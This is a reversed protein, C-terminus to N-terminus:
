VDIGPVAPSQPAAGGIGLTSQLLNVLGWISVMVFLIIIGWIIVGRAEKQSNEDKSIIYKLIGWIFVLVALGIIVPVAAGIISSVTAIMDVISPGNGSGAQAGALIPFSVLLLTFLYKMFKYNIKFLFM